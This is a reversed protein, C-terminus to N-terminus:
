IVKTAIKVVAINVGLALICGRPCSLTCMYLKYQSVTCNDCIINQLVKFQTRENSSKTRGWGTQENSSMTRGWCHWCEHWYKWPTNHTCMYQVTVTVTYVTQVPLSRLPARQLHRYIASSFIPAVSSPAVSLVVAIIILNHFIIAPIRILM